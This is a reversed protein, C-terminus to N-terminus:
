KRARAFLEAYTKYIIGEAKEDTLAFERQVNMKGSEVDRKHEHAPMLYSLEDNCLSNVWTYKFPSSKRLNLAIEHFVEGNLGLIVFDGVRIMQLESFVGKEDQKGGTVGRGHLYTKARLPLPQQLTFYVEKSVSSVVDAQFPELKTWIKKIGDYLMKGAVPVLAAAKDPPVAHEFLAAPHVNGEPGAMMSFVFKNGLENEIKSMAWGFFDSDLTAGEMALANHCGFNALGCVPKGEADEFVAVRLADDYFSYSEIQDQQIDKIGLSTHFSAVSGDKMRARPKGIGPVSIEGIKGRVPKRRSDALFVASAAYRYLMNLYSQTEDSLVEYAIMVGGTDYPDDYDIVKVSSHTHTACVMINEAPIETWQSALQRIGRTINPFFESIDLLVVAAKNKGDDFVTARACLEGIIDTALGKPGLRRAQDLPPTINIKATGVKLTPEM